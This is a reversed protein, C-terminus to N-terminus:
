IQQKIDQIVILEQNKTLTVDVQLMVDWYFQGPYGTSEVKCGFPRHQYTQWKFPKRSDHDRRDIYCADESLKSLENQKCFQTLPNYEMRQNRLHANAHPKIPAFNERHQTPRNLQTSM